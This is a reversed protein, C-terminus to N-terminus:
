WPVPNLAELNKSPFGEKKENEGEKNQPSKGIVVVEELVGWDFDNTGPIKTM